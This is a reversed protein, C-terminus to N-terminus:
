GRGNLSRNLAVLTQPGLIGDPTLKSFNQFRAVAGQTSTGYNGDVAGPSYGLTALARQLLKVASGQEGPKLPASPAVIPSSQTQTATSSTTTTTTTTHAPVATTAARRAPANSFAGSLALGLAVLAVLAVLAAIERRREYLFVSFQSESTPRVDGGALWDDGTARPAATADQRTLPETTRARPAIPPETEDFWDDLDRGRREDRGAM